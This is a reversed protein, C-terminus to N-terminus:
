NFFYYNLEEWIGFQKVFQQSKRDNKHILEEISSSFQSVTKLIWCVLLFKFLVAYYSWVWLYFSLPVGHFSKAYFTNVTWHARDEKWCISSSTKNTNLLFLIFLSCFLGKFSKSLSITQLLCILYVLVSLDSHFITQEPHNPIITIPFWYQLMFCM